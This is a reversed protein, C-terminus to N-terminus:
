RSPVLFSASHSPLYISRHSPFELGLSWIRIFPVVDGRSM